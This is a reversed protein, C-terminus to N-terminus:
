CVKVTWGYKDELKGSQIGTITDYLMQSIKGIGGDAVTIKKGDWEFSGIPSIVAATGTGFSEKLDGRDHAEFLEEATIKRESVKYGLNKLLEITSMRTIGPLISGSLEPPVVEDGIVFFINM